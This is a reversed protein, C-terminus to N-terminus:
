PSLPALLSPDVNTDTLAELFAVLDAQEGEDLNLPRLVQEQHHGPPAAGELTSYFRVVEALNAFQGQHMYPASLAVNRLTPTKFEGWTEPGRRLTRVQTAREGREGDPDDSHPGLANFPDEGVLRAGDYRAADFLNGGGLPAVGTGHFEGDTFNPGAHCTRCLGKGLFIGLGRRAEPALAALKGPDGEALGEAFVDFPSRASVLREQYAALAKGYNAFVRDIAARDGDDMMRWAADHPHTPDGRVPRAHPPFREGDGLSPLAGFVAEYEARLTADGHILHAIAM